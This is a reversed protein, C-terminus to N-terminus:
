IIRVVSPQILATNGAAAPTLHKMWAPPDLLSLVPNVCSGQSHNLVARVSEPTRRVPICSEGGFGKLAARIQILLSPGGDSGDLIGLAGSLRSCM